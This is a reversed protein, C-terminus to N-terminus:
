CVIAKVSGEADVQVGLMSRAGAAHWASRQPQGDLSVCDPPVTDVDAKPSLPRTFQTHASSCPPPSRALLPMPNQTVHPRPLPQTIQRWPNRFGTGAINLYFLLEM